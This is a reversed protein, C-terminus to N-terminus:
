GGLIGLIDDMLSRPSNLVDGGLGSGWFGSDESPAYTNTYANDTEYASKIAGGYTALPNIPPAALGAVASDSLGSDTTPNAGAMEPTQIGLQAALALLSSRQRPDAMLSGVTSQVVNPDESDGITTALQGGFDQLNENGLEGLQDLNDASAYSRLKDAIGRMDELTTGTAGEYAQEAAAVAAQVAGEDMGAAYSQQKVQERIDYFPIGSQLGQIVVNGVAARDEDDLMGAGVGMQEELALRQDAPVLGSIKSGEPYLDGVFGQLNDLKNEGRPNNMLPLTDAIGSVASRVQGPAAGSQALQMATDRLQMLGQQRADLNQTRRATAAQITQDYVQTAFTPDLGHSLAQALNQMSSQEYPNLRFPM